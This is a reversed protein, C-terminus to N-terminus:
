RVDAQAPRPDTRRAALLRRVTGAQESMSRFLFPSSCHAQLVTLVGEHPDILDAAGVDSPPWTRGDRLAVLFPGVPLAEPEGFM